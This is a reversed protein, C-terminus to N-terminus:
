ESHLAETLKQCIEEDSYHRAGTVYFSARAAGHFISVRASQINWGLRALAQSTWFLAGQVDPKRSRSSATSVPFIMAPLSFVRKGEEKWIAQEEQRSSGAFREQACSAGAAHDAATEASESVTEEGQLVARLWKAVEQQKGASLQRGRFDVWLTDLAIRDQETIRTFVQASLGSLEAAYLVGTIKALLGPRPDDYACVTLETYTANPADFFDIVLEGQRVRRVLGIHLAIRELEQNLLYHPPMAQVHETVEEEPLNELKLDKVMRRRARALREENRRVAATEGHLAAAARQWLEQM